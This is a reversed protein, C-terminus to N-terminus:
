TSEKTSSISEVCDMNPRDEINGENIFNNNINQKKKYYERSKEKKEERNKQYYEKLKEKKEVKTKEYYEKSKTKISEKNKEYRNKMYEKKKEKNIEYYEKKKERNIEKNKEYNEKKYKNIKEKNEITYIKMYEKKKEKNKEDYEKKQEIIKERNKEYYEKSKEKIIEKNKIYMSKNYDEMYQKRSVSLMSKNICNNNQIYFKERSHLEDKSNCPFAEILIIEYTGTEIIDFSTMYKLNTKKWYRHGCVHKTLRRALTPECTSGIYIDDNSHNILKYIKGLKYDPM